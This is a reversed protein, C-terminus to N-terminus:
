PMPGEDEAPEVDADPRYRGALLDPLVANIVSAPLAYTEVRGARAINIGVVEGDLTFIPGGMESPTLVTDHQLVSSFGAARSSFFSGFQNQQIARTSGRPRTGLVADLSVVREAGREIRVATIVIKQGVERSTLLGTLNRRNRIPVGDVATIRDGVRLEAREAASFPTVQRVVVGGRQPDSEMTIGLFASTPPVPLPPTALVGFNARTPDPGTSVLFEGVAVADENVFQAVTWDGDPRIGDVRLLALDHQRAIGVVVIPREGGGSFQATAPDLMESAKTLIAGRNDVITGLAIQDGDTNFIRVVSPAVADAVEVFGAIVDPHQKSNDFLMRRWEGRRQANAVPSLALLVAAIGLLPLVHRLALPSTRKGAM